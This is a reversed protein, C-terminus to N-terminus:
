VGEQLTGFRRNRGAFDALASELETPTFDPWLTRTFYLESYASQFLLYNSLRQEGSTRIILDPDPQGATYLYRALVDPTLDQPAQGSGLFLRCARIIEDRGSYNLALNLTLRKEQPEAKCARELIRRAPQPIEDAEGLLILKVSNALLSTEARSIFRALLDFLFRVEELPRQWNEKSFVYLTLYPINLELCKEIIQQATEAGQVHGDTRKLGRQRAWRGNGDMIIALHQLM